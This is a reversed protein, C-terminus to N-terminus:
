EQEGAARENGGRTSQARWVALEINDPTFKVSADAFGVVVGGAHSSRASAYASGDDKALRCKMAHSAPIGTRECGVIYDQSEQSGAANPQFMATFTSAGPTPSTWVGRVDAETDWGLVESIAMTKSIGDAVDGPKTGQGSGM